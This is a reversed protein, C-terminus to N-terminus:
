CAPGLPNRKNWAKTTGFTNLLQLEATTYYRWCNGNIQIDLSGRTFWVFDYIVPQGSAGPGSNRHTITEKPYGILSLLANNLWYSQFLDGRPSGNDQLLADVKPEM